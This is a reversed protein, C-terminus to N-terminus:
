SIMLCSTKGTSGKTKPDRTLIPQIVMIVSKKKKIPKLGMGRSTIIVKSRALGKTLPDALNDESRVFELTM